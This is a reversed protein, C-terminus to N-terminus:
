HVLKGMTADMRSPRFGGAGLPETKVTESIATNLEKIVAGSVDLGASSGLGDGTGTKDTLAWYWTARSAVFESIFEEAPVGGFHKPPFWSALRVWIRQLVEIILGDAAKLEVTTDGDALWPASNLANARLAPLDNLYSILTPDGTPKKVNSPTAPTADANTIPSSAVSPPAGVVRHVAIDDAKQRRDAVREIWNDRYITVEAAKLHRSLGGKMQTRLHDVVCLVALNEPTHDAPNENIHHIQVPLGLVNCVCCTHDQEFLVRAAIDIPIQTREKAM